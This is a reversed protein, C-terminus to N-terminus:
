SGPAEQLHALAQAVLRAVQSGDQWVFDHDGTLDKVVTAHLGDESLKAAMADIEPGDILSDEPSCALLHLRQRPSNEKFTGAYSAPSVDRWRGRDDGFAATIFSAYGDGFRANLGVLDYIGAIGIVAAPLPITSPAPLGVLAAEGMLLQYALTAGASHGILVYEDAIGCEAHLFEIAARVDSIHDPHSAVRLEAAPTEAAKQPFDPHPSLRYDIAAFGRIPPLSSLESAELMRQISPVFADVTLRPDRWAGGHIFRSSGM